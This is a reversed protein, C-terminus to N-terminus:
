KTLKKKSWSRKGCEPCKMYRTRGFHPSLMVTKYKPVYRHHCEQCEYYGVEAEMKVSFFVGVVLLVIASTILITQWVASNVGYCATFLMIFFAVLSIFMIVFEYYLFKRNHEEEWKKLEESYIKNKEEM